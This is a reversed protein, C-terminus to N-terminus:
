IGVKSLDLYRGFIRELVKDNDGQLFELVKEEQDILQDRRPHEPQRQLLARAVSAASCLEGVTTFVKRTEGEFLFEAGRIKQYFENIDEPLIQGHIKVKDILAKTADYVAFRREYLDMRVRYNATKWQRWAIYSAIMAAVLTIFIPGFKEFLVITTPYNKLVSAAMEEM